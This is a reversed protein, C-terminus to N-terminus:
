EGIGIDTIIWGQNLRGYKANGCYKCEFIEKVKNYEMIAGCNDCNARNVDKFDEDQKCTVIWINNYYKDNIDKVDENNTIDDYFYISTYIKIYVQEDKKVCDSLELYQISIHDINKSIKYDENKLLLKNILEENCKVKPKNGEKLSDYLNKIAWKIYELLDDREFGPIEGRIEGLVESPERRFIM